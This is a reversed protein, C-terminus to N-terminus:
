SWADHEECWDHLLIAQEVGFVGRELVRTELRGSSGAIQRLMADNALLEHAIYNRHDVLDKLLGIYDARVSCAELENVVRGLTWRQMRDTDYGYRRALLSKLGFELIQAKGMFMAFHELLNLKEYAKLRKRMERSIDDQSLSPPTRTERAM